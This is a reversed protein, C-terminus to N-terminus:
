TQRLLEQAAALFRELVEPRPVPLHLYPKGSEPDRRVFSLGPGTAPSAAQTGHAAAALQELFALGTKLLGGFPNEPASESVRSAEAAATDVQTAVAGSAAEVSTADAAASDEAEEPAAEPIGGTAKDVTEMFRSLRTGGLFVEKEGGDLAGTFLSKKFKLVSLMGEEITGQSVFNVVQVPRRQGLRHVRGIRQELVAPNWPLDMNIVVSAHQLNLGVGGADTSLFVRCKPDDRFRDVLDKRKEGPVTGDFLVHDYGRTKLRRQLLEHTRRWQSFIVVKIDPREFIEDLLTVAEDCKTGFDTKQDLLFTSNCSMRMNQLGIMLRRQDSESLFRFRRWKAVIRVVLDRNDEHHGMQEPTMRVFFHKDLREPLQKAVQKKQRRILIPALSKGITDLDRYGIVRGVEDRIQHNALFRFTPGLRHRDVFEVISVLEELRNELPTGTLVIAYPSVIRKVSRAARTNWNKIRQAEDLIVVDPSWAAILDLDKHITDYNTIKYFSDSAFLRERRTRLGNIVGASRNTFKAIEREWQHKLSTPCIVLVRSTGLLQAMIEVAAIAQITKGLGMEDGILCRGARAAFLAGERQYDYLDAKVLKGLAPSDIGKRFTDDIRRGRDQADRVEAIFAVADDHCRLDHDFRSAKAVFQDFRAFAEPRLVRDPGFYDAALVALARPCTTGMLFRVERQAGYKLTIASYEPQFGGRLTTRAAVRRELKALTFEIHKCTGLANTAFDPCACFNDGPMTGRIEVRYSNRTQPNTVQYESFVAAGGSNELKFKQERGFQRRLETQWQELSMEDPKQLRSLKVKGPKRKRKGRAKSMIREATVEM